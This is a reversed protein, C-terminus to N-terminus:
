RMTCHRESDRPRKEESTCARGLLPHSPRQYLTADFLCKHRTTKSVHVWETIDGVEAGKGELLFCDAFLVCGAVIFAQHARPPSHKIFVSCCHGHISSTVNISFAVTVGLSHQM